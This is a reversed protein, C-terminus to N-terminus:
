LCAEMMECLENLLKVEIAMKEKVEERQIALESELKPICVSADGNESRLKMLQRAVDYTDAITDEM